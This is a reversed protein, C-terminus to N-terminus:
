LSKKVKMGSAKVPSWSNYPLFHAKISPSQSPDFAHPTDTLNPQHEKEWAHTKEKTNPPLPVMHHLWSHWLAPVKSGEALGKYMVWRQEEQWPGDYGKRRYYRNGQTDMGVLQGKLWTRWYISITMVQLGKRLGKSICEIMMVSLCPM